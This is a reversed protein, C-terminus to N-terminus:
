IPIGQIIKEFDEIFLGLVYPDLNAHDFMIYMPSLKQTGISYRKGFYFLPRGINLKSAHASLHTFQLNPLNGIFISTHWTEIEIPAYAPKKGALRNIEARYKECFEAWSLGCVNEILAEGFREKNGVAVPFFLPPNKFEYWKKNIERYRFYAHKTITQILCWYLYATFSAGQVNHFKSRYVKDAATIDLQITMELNPNSIIKPDHFLKLAFNEYKSLSKMKVPVAAYKKLTKKLNM